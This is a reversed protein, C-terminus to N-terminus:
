INNVEELEMLAECLALAEKENGISDVMGMELAETASFTDASFIRSDEKIQPRLTKVDQVFAEQIPKLESQLRAVFEEDKGAFFDQMSKNKLDSGPANVIMVKYGEKAMAERSDGLICTAGISGIMPSISGMTMIHNGLLSAIWYHLSCLTNALVVIPKSKESAFEKFANIAPVAGGPGDITILIAGVDKNNNLFRLEELYDDAGLNCMGGYTTMAGIMAIKAIKKKPSTKDLVSDTNIAAIYNDQYIKRDITEGINKGSLFLNAIKEYEHLQDTNLLWKSRLLDFVLSNNKM